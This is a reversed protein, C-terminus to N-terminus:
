KIGQPTEKELVLRCPLRGTGLVIALEQADVFSFAGSISAQGGTIPGQVTPASLCIGKSPTRGDFAQKQGDDIIDGGADRRTNLVM